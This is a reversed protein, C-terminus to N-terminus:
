GIFFNMTVESPSIEAHDAREFNYRIYSVDSSVETNSTGYHYILAESIVQKNADFTEVYGFFYMHYSANVPAVSIYAMGEVNNTPIYDTLLYTDNSTTGGGGTAEGNATSPHILNVTPKKTVTVITDDASVTQSYSIFAEIRVYSAGELMNKHLTTTRNDYREVDMIFNQNADYLILYDFMYNYSSTTTLQIILASDDDMDSVDILDTTLFYASWTDDTVLAGNETYGVNLPVEYQQEEENNGGGSDIANFLLKKSM